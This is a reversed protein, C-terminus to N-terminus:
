AFALPCLIQTAERNTCVHSWHTGRGVPRLQQPNYFLMRSPKTSTVQRQDSPIVHYTRLAFAYWASQATHRRCRVDTYWDSRSLCKIVEVV